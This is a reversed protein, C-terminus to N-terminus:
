VSEFYNALVRSLREVAANRSACADRAASLISGLHAYAPASARWSGASDDFWSTVM